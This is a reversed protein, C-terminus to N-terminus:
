IHVYWFGGFIPLPLTNPVQPVSGLPGEVPVAMDSYTNSGTEFLGFIGPYPPLSNYGGVPNSVPGVGVPFAGSTPAPLNFTSSANGNGHPFITFTYSGTAVTTSLQISSGSLGEITTAFATGSPDPVGEIDFGPITWLPNSPLSGTGKFPTNGGAAPTILNTGNGTGQFSQTVAAMLAAYTARSKASGDALLFGYSPTMASSFKLDGPQWGENVWGIGSPSSFSNAGVQLIQFPQGASLLIADGEVNAVILQGQANLVESLDNLTFTISGSRGDFTKVGVHVHGADAALETEGAAANAGVPQIAVSSTNIVVNDAIIAEDYVLRATITDFFQGAEESYLPNAAIPGGTTSGNGFGIGQELALIASAWFNGFSADIYQTDDQYPTGPIPYDYGQPWQSSTAM